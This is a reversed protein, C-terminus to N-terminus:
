FASISVRNPLWQCKLHTIGFVKQQSQCLVDRFPLSFVGSKQGIAAVAAAIVQRQAAQWGQFPVSLSCSPYFSPSLIVNTPFCHCSLTMRAGRAGDKSFQCWVPLFHPLRSALPLFVFLLFNKRKARKMLKWIDHRNKSRCTKSSTNKHEVRM